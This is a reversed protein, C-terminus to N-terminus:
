LMCNSILLQNLKGIQIFEIDICLNFGKFTIIFNFSSPSAHFNNQFTHHSHKM